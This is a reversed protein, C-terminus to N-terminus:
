WCSTASGESAAQRAVGDAIPVAASGVTVTFAIDLRDGSGSFPSGGSKQGTVGSALVTWGATSDIAISTPSVRYVLQKAATLGWARCEWGSQGIAVRARLFSGDVRFAAANRVSAHLSDAAVQATTTATDRNRTEAQSRMGTAFLSAVLGLLIAAVVIYVVLEVLTVGEDDGLRASGRRIM